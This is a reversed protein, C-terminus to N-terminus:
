WTRTKARMDVQFENIEQLLKDRDSELSNTERSYDTVDQFGWVSQAFRLRLRPEQQFQLSILEVCHVTAGTAPDRLNVWVRCGLFPKVLLERMFESLGRSAHKPLYEYHFVVTRQGRADEEDDTGEVVDDLDLIHVDTLCYGEGTMELTADEVNVLPRLDKEGFVRVGGSLLKRHEDLNQQREKTRRVVQVGEEELINVLTQGYKSTAGFHTRILVRSPKAIKILGDLPACEECLLKGHIAARACTRHKGICAFFDTPRTKRRAQPIPTVSEM